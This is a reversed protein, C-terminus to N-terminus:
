AVREDILGGQERVGCRQALSSQYQRNRQNAEDKYASALQVLAGDSYSKFPRAGQKEKELAMNRQYNWTGGAGLAVLVILLLLVSGGSGGEGRSKAM